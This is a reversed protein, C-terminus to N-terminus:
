ETLKMMARHNCWEAGNSLYGDQAIERAAQLSLLRAVDRDSNIRVDGHSESPLIGRDM